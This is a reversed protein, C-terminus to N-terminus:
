KNNIVEYITTTDPTSDGFVPKLLGRDVMGAFKDIGEPAYYIRELGGVIVYRVQYTDLFKLAEAVDTTNYFDNVENIRKDVVAGDLLSNHQRVHWSWGVVSPLGTHISFRSGWRYEETHGEVIVPSGAVYDQMWQMAAYDPGLDIPRGEDNYIAPTQGNIDGLMFAAGDLTHPPNQIDPWRDTIKKDTAILPYSAAGIVLVVLVVAWVYKSWGPRRRFGALLDILALSIALGFIFWAQDYFRFVMNSRGVDGKLVVVEVLLTLALGIGFLIWTIRRLTTLERNFFVLYAIGILLPFGFALVQYDNVWLLGLVGVSVVIVAYRKLYWKSFIGRAGQRAVALWQRYAARFQVHFDQIFLSIMLFVALGFVFAYDILPTRSGTWLEASIYATKFWEVFPWYLAVALGVFTLAYAAGVILTRRLSGTRDRWVTWLVVLVGLGLFTPFDWTNTARFSGFILGAVLLSLLRAPWKQRSLPWLLVSLMWGFALAYFPMALLHPHLDGYLFTFYPFEAIPTDPGDHLIPRSAEFYWRGKDGPLPAQGSVVQGLGDIVAGVQRMMPMAEETPAAAEPLYKWLVRVEYLNGALLVALLALLGALYAWGHVKFSAGARRLRTQPQDTETPPADGTPNKRLGAVLNYGIGFVGIGTMAFWSPLILNYAISPLIGLLKTPIAALVYGYYYYNLYHGSFWPNEPPFYVAKLVANFFALDMPKEGGLWPNWLDPNGLRIALSFLFLALFLAEIVLLHKWRARFYQALGARQRRALVVNFVLVLGVCLWLTTSTFPLIKLSGAFWALWATIILGAMRMLPYGRDPLGAFVTYGIPFVMLGLSFLLVYWVIASLAPNSNLSSFRDFMASWTGGATQAALRDLPLQMATPAQDYELPTQFLVQSLDVSDLLAKVQDISFDASKKFVMVKPHDYVTFSEDALQDPFVLPGLAPPSEFTAILDFGLPSKFPPQLGAARSELENGTCNACDFLTQYYKLTLPYRNPLRPMADYARNSPSVLYNSDALVQLMADRKAPTDPEYLELNLPTYIGGQAEYDDVNLPLADDWSTELSFSEGLARLPSGQMVDYRVRYSQKGALEIPPFEFIPSLVQGPQSFSLTQTAEALQQNDDEEPYLSLKLTSEAPVFAQQFNELNLRNLVLPMEPTIPIVGQLTGPSQAQWSLDLPLTPLNQDVNGLIINTVSFQSSNQLSYHLYYPTGPNLNVDGFATTQHEDHNDDYIPLRGETIIDTGAEDKTLRFYLYVGLQRVAIATIKSTNGTQLVNLKGSSTEGPTILQGNGVALPYSRSGQPSDVILNFPGPLNALIWQSAAIRTIPRNYIQTFAAAYVYTGVVVFGLVLLGATGKWTHRWDSLQLHLQIGNARLRARSDRTRDIIEILAWAAFLIIFPYIPLFYRMYRWFMANQWFFYVAVWAFPLLHKRWDGKLMRWGAWLWGLWGALGLPLGLGWMVMNTWAYIGPRSTWHTNPPWDSNGAVQNTVEQIVKLWNENIQLGLLGPGAFAYPQFIRFTLFAMGAALLWGALIKKLVSQFDAAKWHTILMALGALLIVGFVPLTNVKCAGALGVMSGFVGGYFLHSYSLKEAPRDIPIALVAFYVSAVVFVTSFSDVAYYHSLQIPLVGAVGLAAALLGTRKNYLRKGLLYLVWVAALDFLGSLARGVLTISDYNDMQVWGAIARTFFLPFMGYTYSGFKLPNLPSNATDFYAALDDVGRIQDTVMTVYREDPHQHQNNDWNLGTLRFYAGLVLILVLALNTKWSTKSKPKPLSSPAPQDPESLQSLEVLSAPLQTQLAAEVPQSPRDSPVLEATSQLDPQSAPQAVHVLPVIRQLVALDIGWINSLDDVSQYPRLAMIRRAQRSSIGLHQILQQEDATNLDITSRTPQTM